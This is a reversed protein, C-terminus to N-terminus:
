RPLLALADALAIEGQYGGGSAPARGAEIGHAFAVAPDAQLRDYLRSLNPYDRRDLVAHYDAWRAIGAFYADAVSRREGLLWPGDGLLADLTAHTKEVKDRGYEALATKAASEMDHELVHWLPAFANFFSTNLYALMQNLRDFDRSGQPHGLGQAIGRAGIHNLIAMSETIVDGAASLYAPTEAVPNIRRFDAGSVAEPMQIRCLRYPQGLWELAVISGFSCGSPVGYFLIPTM